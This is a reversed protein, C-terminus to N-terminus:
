NPKQDSENEAFIEVRAGLGQAIDLLKAALRPDGRFVIYKLGHNLAAHALDARDGCDVAIIPDLEPFDARLIEVMKVFFLVGYQIVADPPTALQVPEGAARAANM